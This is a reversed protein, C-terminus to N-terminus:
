VEIFIYHILYISFLHHSLRISLFISMYVSLDVFWYFLCIFLHILLYVYHYISRGREGERGREKERFFGTNASDQALSLFTQAIRATRFLQKFAIDM